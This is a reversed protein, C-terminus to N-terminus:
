STILNKVPTLILIPSTLINNQNLQLSSHSQRKTSSNKLWIRMATSNGVKSTLEWIRVTFINMRTEEGTLLLGMDVNLKHAIEFLISAPIDSTADEYGSYINLPVNLYEAMEEKSIVTLERLESIRQTIEKMKEKM